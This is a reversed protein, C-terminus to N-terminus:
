GHPAELKSLLSFWSSELRRCEAEWERARANAAAELDDALTADLAADRVVAAVARSVAVDQELSQTATM